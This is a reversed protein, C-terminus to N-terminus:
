WCARVHISLASFIFWFNHSYSEVRWWFDLGVLWFTFRIWLSILQLQGMYWVVYWCMGTRWVYAAYHRNTYKNSLQLKCRFFFRFWFHGLNTNSSQYLLIEMKLRFRSCNNGYACMIIVRLCIRRGYKNILRQPWKETFIRWGGPMILLLWQWQM